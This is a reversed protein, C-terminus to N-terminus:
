HKSDNLFSVLKKMNAATEYQPGGHGAGPIQEYFVRVGAQKLAAVLLASQGSGVVCDNDGNQIFFPASDSTVYTVPNSQTVLAPASNLAAGLYASEFSGLEGHKASVNCGMGALMPDIQLFDIPPYQAIVAIPRPNHTRTIGSGAFSPNGFAVGVLTAINAGASEGYVAVNEPDVQLSRSHDKLYVVAGFVDRVAGPFILEGSLRYDVSAVAYGADLLGSVVAASAMTRSGFKFGGGHVYVVVPFVGSGEPRYLDFKQAPSDVGYALDALVPTIGVDKVTPVLVVGDPLVLKCAMLGAAAVALM